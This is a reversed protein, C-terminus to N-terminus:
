PGAVAVVSASAGPLSCRRSWSGGAGAPRRRGPRPPRCGRCRGRGSTSPPEGPCRTRCSGLQQVLLGLQGQAEQVADALDVGLVHEPAMSASCVRVGRTARPAAQDGVVDEVEAGGLRLVIICSTCPRAPSTGAGPGSRMREGFAGLLDGDLDLGEWALGSLRASWRPGFVSSGGTRRVPRRQDGEQDRVHHRDAPGPHARDRDGPEDQDGGPGRDLGAQDREASIAGSTSQLANPPGSISRTPARRILMTASVALATTTASIGRRCASSTSDSGWAAPGPRADGARETSWAVGGLARQDRVDGCAALTGSSRTVPRSLVVSRRAPKKANASAPPRM